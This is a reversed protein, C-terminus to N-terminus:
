DDEEFWKVFTGNNWQAFRSMGDSLIIKGKGHQKGNLWSGEYQQGDTRTQSLPPM